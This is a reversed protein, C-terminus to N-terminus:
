KGGGPKQVPEAGQPGAFQYVDLEMKVDLRSDRGSVIRYDKSKPVDKEVAGEEGDRVVPEKRDFLNEDGEVALRTVVMFLPSRAIGNLVNMVASEKGSFQLVFHWRGFMQGPMVLGANADAVNKLEAATAKGKGPGLKQPTPAPAVEGEFEQRSLAELRSIKADYLITCLAEIIKLQQSLRPVDKPSPLDGAMHRGFGFHYNEPVGIGAARAKALLGERTKFFLPVYQAPSQNVPEAQGAAMAQELGALAKQIEAINAQELKLNARSPFPNRGYLSDLSETSQGLRTEAEYFKMFGLVLVAVAGLFLLGILVAVAIIM